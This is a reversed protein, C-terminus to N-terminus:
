CWPENNNLQKPEYYQALFLTFSFPFISLTIAFLSFTIHSIGNGFLFQFITTLTFLVITIFFLYISNKKM